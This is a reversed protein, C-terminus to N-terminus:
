PKAVRVITGGSVGNTFYVATSDLAIALPAGGEALVLPGAKPCGGLPCALVRGRAFDTWYVNTEDAAIGRPVGEDPALTTISLQCSSRTCHQMRGAGGDTDVWFVDKATIALNLQTGANAALQTAGPGTCGALPCSWVAGGVNPSSSFVFGADDVKVDQFYTGANGDLASIIVNCVPNPPATCLYLGSTNGSGSYSVYVYGNHTFLGLAPQVFLLTGAGAAADLGQFPVRQNYLSYYAYTSDVALRDVDNTTTVLTGANGGDKPAFQVAGASETWFVLTGSLALAVPTGASVALPVAQCAGTVCGGGVCDHGCRGCNAPDTALNAADCPSADSSADKKADFSADVAVVADLTADGGADGANADSDLLEHDPIGIILGCGGLM